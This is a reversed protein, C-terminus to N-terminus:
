IFIYRHNRKEINIADIAERTPVKILCVIWQRRDATHMVPLRHLLPKQATAHAPPAEHEGARVRLHEAPSELWAILGRLLNEPLLEKGAYVFDDDGLPATNVVKRNEINWEVRLLKQKHQLKGIHEAFNTLLRTLAAERLGARSAEETVALGRLTHDAFILPQGQGHDTPRYRMGMLAHLHETSSMTRSQLAQKVEISRGLALRIDDTTPFLARLEPDRGHNSTSVVLGGPIAAVQRDYYQIAGNVAPLLRSEYDRTGTVDYGLTSVIKRMLPHSAPLASKTPQNFSMLNGLLGM